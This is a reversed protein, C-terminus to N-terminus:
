QITMNETNEAIERYQSNITENKTWGYRTSFDDDVEDIRTQIKQILDYVKRYVDSRGEGGLEKIYDEGNKSVSWDNGVYGNQSNFYKVDAKEINKIDVKDIANEVLSIFSKNDFELYDFNLIRIGEPSSIPNYEGHGSLEKLIVAFNDIEEETFERGIRLEIGNADKKAPNFFPRHWGVGDQKMLIGRAISYANILEVAAPEIEGYKPGKYM